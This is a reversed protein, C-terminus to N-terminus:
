VLGKSKLHLYQKITHQKFEEHTRSLKDRNCRMCCAVCNNLQYGQEPNKRDIGNRRLTEMGKGHPLQSPVAGCYHCDSTVLAIYDQLSLNWTKALEERGPTKKLSRIYRLKDAEWLPARMKLRGALFAPYWQCGCSTTNLSVLNSPLATHTKGCSCECVWKPKAGPVREEGVVKLHGFIQGIVLTHPRSM